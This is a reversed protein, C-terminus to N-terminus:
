RSLLSSKTRTLTASPFTSRRKLRLSTGRPKSGQSDHTPKPGSSVGSRIRSLLVCSIYRRSTSRGYGRCRLPLKKVVSFPFGSVDVVTQHIFFISTSSILRANARPEWANPWGSAQIFNHRYKHSGYGAFGARDQLMLFEFDRLRADSETPCASGRCWCKFADIM